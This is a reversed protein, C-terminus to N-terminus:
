QAWRDVGQTRPFKFLHQYILLCSGLIGLGASALALECLSDAISYIM